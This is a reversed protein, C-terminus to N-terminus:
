GHGDGGDPQPIYDLVPMGPLIPNTVAGARDLPPLVHGEDVMVVWGLGRLVRLAEERMEPLALGRPGPRRLILEDSALSRVAWHINTRSTDLAAAIEGYSPSAGWETIYRRVFALVLLRLSAM